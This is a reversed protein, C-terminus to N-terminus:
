TKELRLTKRTGGSASQIFFNDTVDAKALLLARKPLANTYGVLNIRYFYEQAFCGINIFLVFVLSFGTKYKISKKRKEM